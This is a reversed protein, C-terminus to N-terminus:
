KNWIEWSREAQLQLMENGNKVKAGRELGKKMFLTEEPNYVLDYLFQNSNLAEYPLDPCKDVKPYTGLPTSNVILDVKNVIEPKALLDQYTLDAKRQSRSIEQYTINLDSLAARVAKSAGGTGLILASEITRGNTFGVLSDHFGYYDSNYGVLGDSERKIVNVAGVKDASPDLRNIFQMVNEKHPVTVNVGILDADDWLSMFTDITEMELLEYQHDILNMKQFKKTFYNKSFSHGLPFGILGFKKM